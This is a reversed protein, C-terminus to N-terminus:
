FDSDESSWGSDESDSDDGAMLHVKNLMKDYYNSVGKAGHVGGGTMKERRNMLEMKLQLLLPFALSSYRSKNFLLLVIIKIHIHM